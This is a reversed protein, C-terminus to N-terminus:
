PDHNNVSGPDLDDSIELTYKSALKGGGVLLAGSM